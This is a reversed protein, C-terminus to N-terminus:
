SPDAVLWHGTGIRLDHEYIIAGNDSLIEERGEKIEAV